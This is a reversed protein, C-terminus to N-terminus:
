YPLQRSGNGNVVSALQRLSWDVLSRMKNKGAKSSYEVEVLGCPKIQKVMDRPKIKVELDCKCAVAVTNIGKSHLNDTLM